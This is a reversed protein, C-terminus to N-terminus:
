SLKCLNYYYDIDSDHKLAERYSKEGCEFGKFTRGLVIRMEESPLSNLFKLRVLAAVLAVPERAKAGKSVPKFFTGPGDWRLDAILKNKVKEARSRDKFLDWLNAGEVKPTEESLMKQLSHIKSACTYFEKIIARIYKLTIDYSFNTPTGEKYPVKIALDEDLEVMRDFTKKCHDILHQFGELYAFDFCDCRIWNRTYYEYKTGLYEEKLKYLQLAFYAEKGDPYAESLKRHDFEFVKLADTHYALKYEEKIFTKISELTEM